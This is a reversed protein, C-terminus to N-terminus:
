LILSYFCFLFFLISFLVDIKSILNLNKASIIINILFRTLLQIFFFLFIKVSYPNLILANDFKFQIIQNFARTLGRSKCYVLPMDDCSSRLNYPFLPLFLCYFFIFMILVIFIVNIKKYSSIKYFTHTEM